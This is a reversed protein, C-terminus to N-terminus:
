KTSFYGFLDVQLQVSASGYNFFSLGNNSQVMALNPVTQGTTYNINSVVPMTTGLPFVTIHGGGASQSATVNAVAGKYGSPLAYNLTGMAAVPSSTTTDVIRIPGLPHYVQGNKGSTYYGAVDALIDTTAGTAGYFYFDVKGDKGVPIEVMNPVTDGASFNLNSVTPKTVAGGSATQNPYVTLYGGGTANTVTVNMAIGTIGAPISESPSGAITTGGVPLQITSQALVKAQKVGIGKRTDMARIPTIPTYSSSIASGVSSATTFYGELDAIYQVTGTSNNVLNVAGDVVPVTVLNPTTAGSVWDLNTTSPVSEGDPYLTGSGSATPATETVNLVVATATSPVAQSSSLVSNGVIPLRVTGNAPVPGTYTGVKHTSRTDLIRVPGDQQYYSPAQCVAGVVGPAHPTGWGTAMDYGTTASYGSTAGDNTIQNNGSTVDTAFASASTTPLGGVTYLQPNVFGASGGVKCTASADALALVAAWVPAAGSTGGIINYYEGSNTGDNYYEEIVYGDKPDALASVDPVQRCGTGGQSVTSTCNASYGSAIAGSQWSPLPWTNSVGGGSAGCYTTSNVTTCENWTYPANNNQSTMGTGGVATAFPQAAPDDVSLLSNDAAVGAGYCDTSGQDGSAVLISQGQAAAEQFLTNESTQMTSSGAKTLVECLGWSDSIVKVPTNVIMKSFVDLIQSDTASTADPGAYDIINAGPALNAVNEIDLASEVGINNYMNAAATPGNDVKVESVSTSSHGYCSDLSSVGTADYSELEFVGVNVGAGDDNNGFEQNVGYIDAIMDATYYGNGNSLGSGSFVTSINSCSNVSYNSTVKAGVSGGAQVAHHSVSVNPTAYDESDLGLVGSIDSSVAAPVTPATTNAYFSRGAARYGKINVNFAHEAQAVTGSASIFMGNSSASEVTLGQAKLSAEVASIETQSAGFYEAIQSTTLYHHYYSSNKDSVASAYAALAAAHGTNLEIDLSLKKSAAPSAASVAGKPLAPAHGVAVNGSTTAALSPVAAAVQAAGLALSLAAAPLGLRRMAGPRSSPRGIGDTGRGVQVNDVNPTGM